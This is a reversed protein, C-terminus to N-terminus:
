ILISTYNITKINIGSERKIKIFSESLMNWALLVIHQSRTAVFVKIQELNSATFPVLLIPFVSNVHNM